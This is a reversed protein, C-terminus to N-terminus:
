YIFDEAQLCAATFVASAAFAFLKINIFSQFSGSAEVVYEKM